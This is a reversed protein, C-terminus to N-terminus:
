PGGTTQPGNTPSQQRVPAFSPIDLLSLAPLSQLQRLQRLVEPVQERGEVM